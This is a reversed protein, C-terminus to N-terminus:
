VRQFWYFLQFSQFRSEYCNFVKFPGRVQDRLKFPNKDQSASQEGGEARGKKKYKYGEVPMMNASRVPLATRATEPLAVHRVIM